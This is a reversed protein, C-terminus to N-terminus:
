AIDKKCYKMFAVVIGIVGYLMGLVVLGADLSVNSIIDAGETYGFPTIYKLFKASDSINAIINLFYLMAAIGLGIGFGGRRLFASIGFCIGAIEIQLFLFALHLLLIEKWPITEKILAISAISLLCVLVNMILLQIMVALLKEGVIRGRGVPHTLLFEATHEKEEKALISVGCLAAFFAGGLGLINGCEVAYYGMLSGFNIRDMGFAQTFSGMSTFMDSVGEMEGKMEPFLFVCIALLFGIATTWIILAKKGQKLEHKMLTM